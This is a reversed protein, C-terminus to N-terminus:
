LDDINTQSNSNVLERILVECDNDYKEHNFPKDENDWLGNTLNYIHKKYVGRIMEFVSVLKLMKHLGIYIIENHLRVKKIVIQGFWFQNHLLLKTMADLSNEADSFLKTYLHKCVRRIDRKPYLKANQRYVKCSCNLFYLNVKNRGAIISKKTVDELKPIQYVDSIIEINERKQEEVNLSIRVM